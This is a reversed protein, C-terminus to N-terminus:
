YIGDLGYNKPICFKAVWKRSDTMPQFRLDVLMLMWILGPLGYSDRFGELLGQFGLEFCSLEM